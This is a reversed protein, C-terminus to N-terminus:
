SDYVQHAGEILDARGNAEGYELANFANLLNRGLFGIEAVGNHACGATALEVGAYYKIPNAGTFSSTFFNCLEDKVRAPTYAGQLPQPRLTDYSYEWVESVCKAFDDAARRRVEWNFSMSHGKALYQFATVSPALTLKRVYSKPTESYPFGYCLSTVGGTNEFGTFGVSTRGSVMVNGTSHTSLADCDLSDLRIVSMYEKKEPSYVATLPTSLRDERVTWSDSVRFSPAGDPSRLNQRYWFGPMLLQCSAHPFDSRIKEGYNFWINELATVTVCVRAADDGAYTVTRTVKVPLAVGDRGTAAGSADFVLARAVAENGPTATHICAEPASVPQLRGQAGIAATVCMIGLFLKRIKM